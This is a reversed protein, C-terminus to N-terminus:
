RKSILDVGAQFEKMNVIENQNLNWGDEDESDRHSKIEVVNIQRDNNATSKLSSALPKLQADRVSLKEQSGSDTPSYITTL